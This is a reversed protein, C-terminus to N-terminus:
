CFSQNSPKSLEKNRYDIPIMGCYKKFSRYLHSTDSYGVTEVIEGISINPNLLLEAAKRIRSSRIIDSFTSGTCEKILRSFYAESYNFMKSLSSLTVTNYNNYLYRLILVINEDQLGPDPNLVIANKEHDRLINLCLLMLYTNMFRSSYEKNEEFESLM